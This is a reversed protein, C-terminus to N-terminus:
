RDSASSNPEGFTEWTRGQDASAVVRGRGTAAFLRNPNSPDVALHLLVGGSAVKTLNEFQPSPGEQARVLGRDVVFAYLTGDPTVEVLTVPKSHLVPRWSKGADTSILLGDDTAAYLTAADSASVALDILKNPAPGVLKWTKGADRSVQLGGYSGYITNPDAPSVTM